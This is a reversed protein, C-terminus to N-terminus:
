GFVFVDRVADLEVVVCDHFGGFRVFDSIVYWIYIEVELYICAEMEWVAVLAAEWESWTTGLFDDGCWWILVHFYIWWVEVTLWEVM